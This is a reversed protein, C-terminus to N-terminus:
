RKAEKKMRRLINLSLTYFAIFAILSIIFAWILNKTPMVSKREGEILIVAPFLWNLLRLTVNFLIIGIVISFIAAVIIKLYKKM